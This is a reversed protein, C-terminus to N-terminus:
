KWVTFGVAITLENIGSSTSGVKSNRLQDYQVAFNVLANGAFKLKVGGRGGYCYADLDSDSAFGFIGEIFPFATGGTNFNYCPSFLVRLQSETHSGVSVVQLSFPNIGLEFGNATFYGIYPAFVFATMATGSSRDSVSAYSQISVSGGLELVGKTAFSKSSDQAVSLLPGFMASVIILHMLRFSAVELKRKM